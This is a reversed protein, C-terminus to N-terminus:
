ELIAVPRSFCELIQGIVVPDENCAIVKMAGRVASGTEIEFSSTWGPDLGLGRTAVTTSGHMGEGEAPSPWPSPSIFGMRAAFVEVSCGLCEYGHSM